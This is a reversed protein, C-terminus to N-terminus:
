LLKTIQCSLSLPLGLMCNDLSFESVSVLNKTMVHRSLHILNIRSNISSPFSASSVSLVPLSPGNGLIIIQHTAGKDVYWPQSQRPHSPQGHNPHPFEIPTSSHHLLHM